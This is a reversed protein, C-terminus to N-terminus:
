NVLLKRLQAVLHLRVRIPTSIRRIPTSIKPFHRGQYKDSLQDNLPESVKVRIELGLLLEDPFHKSLQILLGGYGCGIDLVTVERDKRDPYKTDWVMSGPTKPYDFCHHALPNSHARQRYFRKQPLPVSMQVDVKVVEEM